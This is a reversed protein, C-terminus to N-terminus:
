FDDEGHAEGGSRQERDRMRLKGFEGDTNCGVGDIHTTKGALEVSTVHAGNRRSEATALGAVNPHEHVNSIVSSKSANASRRESHGIAMAM